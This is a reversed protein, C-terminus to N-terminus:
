KNSIKNLIAQAVNIITNPSAFLLLGVCFSIVVEYDKDLAKPNPFVFLGYFHIITLIMIVIGLGM